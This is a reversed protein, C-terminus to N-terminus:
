LDEGNGCLIALAFAELLCWIGTILLWWNVAM